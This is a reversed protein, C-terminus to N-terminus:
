GNGSDDEDEGRYAKMFEKKAEKLEDFINRGTKKVVRHAEEVLAASGKDLSEEDPAQQGQQKLRWKILEKTLGKEVAKIKDGVGPKDSKEM